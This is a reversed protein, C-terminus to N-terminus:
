ELPQRVIRPRKLRGEKFYSSVSLDSTVVDRRTSYLVPNDIRARRHEEASVVTNNFFVEETMRSIAIEDTRTSFLSEHLAIARDVVSEDRFYLCGGHYVQRKGTRRWCCQFQNYQRIRGQFPPGITLNDFLRRDPPALVVTDWDLWIVGDPNPATRLALKIAELKHRWMSCRWNIRGDGAVTRNGGVRLWDFIGEETALIPEYGAAKLFECNEQGFAFVRSELGTLLHRLHSAHRVDQLTKQHTVVACDGWLARVLLPGTM